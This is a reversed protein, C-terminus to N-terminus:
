KVTEPKKPYLNLALKLAVATDLVLEKTKATQGHKRVYEYLSEEKIAPNEKKLVALVAKGVKGRDANTRKKNEEPAAAFFAAASILSGMTVAAGFSSFYSKYTSDVVWNSPNNQEKECIHLDKLVEYAYPILRDVRKKNMM